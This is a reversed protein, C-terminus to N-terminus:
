QGPHCRCPGQGRGPDPRRHRHLHLRGPRQLQRQPHLDPHRRRQAHRHRQHGGGLWRRRHEQRRGPHHDARRRHRRRLRQGARRHGGPHGRRHRGQRRGGRAFREAAHRHHGAHVVFRHQDHLHDAPRHRNWNAEPVFVYDGNQAITITGIGALTATQGFTYTQGDVTFTAITLVNDVDSDNALVNGTANSDEAVTKTDPALVSADDVPTVTIDLTSSSGTNTIYTIQPVTGNWNADPVFSYDGNVGITITGIGAITATDGANYTKGGVAFSSVTLNNDIDSDNALVNGTASTDEPVSNTDAVLKSADDVPAVNITVTGVDTGGRGDAVTYDFVVPGNFDPNPTFTLSGDPNMSLVGQPLTVSGGPVIPQGNIETITLPDGDPDSDNARPDFSVPADEVGAVTEDRATPPDNLDDVVIHVNGVDTATGDSVTYTFDVPGNYNPVPDFTLTGDPNLTVEGIPNGVADFLTIPTGPVVPQGNIETITLPEGDPDSDNGLVNITVPTDEPTTASDDIAVPADNRGTVTLTLTTTSTLGSPDTVTYTFVDVQSESDDLAQAAANPTYTYSGDANLTLSGWAGDLPQGVTGSTAGFSVASVSLSDGDPDTDTGAGKIVGDAASVVLATDEDTSGVDAVATPADNVGGVDLTVHATDTAGTPDAVTYDFEVPGNYGPDPNFTVTGDANLTVTGNPVTVTDGPSVPQGNIETITLKDGDPDSDNSLLNLVVPADELSTARDDTALPADNVPTVDVHVKAVVPTLGDTVTYTFDVPGNYNASPTFTLTGDANLTVTGNTVAVSGGVAINKGDVQTITLVDGIDADSDNALVDIVM